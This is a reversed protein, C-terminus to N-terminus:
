AWIVMVALASEQLGDHCLSWEQSSLTNRTDGHPDAALNFGEVHFGEVTSFGAVAGARGPPFRQWM